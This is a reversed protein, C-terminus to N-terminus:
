AGGRDSASCAGGGGAPPLLLRANAFRVAAPRGETGTFTVSAGDGPDGVQESGGGLALLGALGGCLALLAAAALARGAYVVTSGPAPDARGRRRVRPTGGLAAAGPAVAVSRPWRACSGGRRPGRPLEHAAEAAVLSGADEPHEEAWLGRAAGEEPTLSGGVFLPLAAEFDARSQFGGAIPDQREDNM